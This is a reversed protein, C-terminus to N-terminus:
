PSALALRSLMRRGASLMIFAESSEPRGEHDRTLRRWRTIWAFSREIVWRRPLVHFGKASPGQEPEGTPERRSSAGKTKVLGRVVEVDWGLHEKIWALLTGGYHSDGWLLKIRGFLNKVPELLRKAGALDSVEAGTVKVTLLNGQTDVLAHRKRGWIKKGADYGKEHGRVASTKISQSDIVAASPEADRGQKQRVQRRLTKLIEDWLGQDRWLRFYWYLTGWAPLDHPVLRWPCGSRLVYLLGNVIERREYTVTTANESVAPILPELLEWEADTLDSPYAKRKAM